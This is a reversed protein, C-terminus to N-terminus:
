RIKRWDWPRMCNHLHVGIKARRAAAELEVYTRTYRTYAYAMGQEVMAANIDIGNASCRGVARGYRDTDLIVCDVRHGRILGRLVMSAHQGAPWGDSCHQRLEPADIGWLRITRGGHRITDGDVVATAAQAHVAILLILGVCLVLMLGLWGLTDSTRDQEHDPPPIIAKSALAIRWFTTSFHKNM